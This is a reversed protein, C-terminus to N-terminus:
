NYKINKNCLEIQVVINDMREIRSETSIIYIYIYPM